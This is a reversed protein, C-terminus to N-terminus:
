LAESHKLLFTAKEAEGEGPADYKSATKESQELV